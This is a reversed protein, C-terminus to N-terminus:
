NTASFILRCFFGLIQTEIDWNLDIVLDIIFRKGKVTIQQTATVTTEGTDAYYNASWTYSGAEDCTISNFTVKTVPNSAGFRAVVVINQVSSHITTNTNLYPPPISILTVGGKKLKLSLGAIQASTLGSYTCTIEYTNNGLVATLSGSTQLQIQCLV